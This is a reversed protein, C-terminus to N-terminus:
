VRAGHSRARSRWREAAALHQEAEGLRGAKAANDAARYKDRMIQVALERMEDENQGVTRVM